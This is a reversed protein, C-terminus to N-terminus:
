VGESLYRAADEWLTEEFRKRFFGFHGIQTAGVERPAVVRVEREAGRYVDVLARVAREPAYGDDAIAYARLQGRWLGFWAGDRERASVALYGPDRGWRAWQRAVGGPVDEGGGLMAGPLFGLTAVAAPIGAHWLLAMGARRPGDWHKWYGSQSGVFLARDFPADPVFGMLQGGVSHGVYRVPLGGFRRALEDCGAALDLEGWDTLAVQAGRGHALRSGGIGRYDITLAALEHRAALHQAFARYYRRQVGMAPAILVAARPPREPVVLDAAVAVGDPASLVLELPRPGEAARAPPRPQSAQRQSRDELTPAPM